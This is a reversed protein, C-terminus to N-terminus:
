DDFDSELEGYYAREMDDLEAESYTYEEDEILEDASLYTGYTDYEWCYDILEQMIERSQERRLRRRYGNKVSKITGAKWGFFRRARPSFADFEDGSKLPIQKEVM